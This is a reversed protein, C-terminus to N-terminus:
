TRPEELVGKHCSVSTKFQEYALGNWGVALAERVPDLRGLM